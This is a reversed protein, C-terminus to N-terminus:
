YYVLEDEEDVDVQVSVAEISSIHQGSIFIKEESDVSVWKIGPASKTILDEIDSFRETIYEKGSDMIIKLRM